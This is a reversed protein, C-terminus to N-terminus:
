LALPYIAFCNNTIRSHGQVVDGHTLRHATIETSLLDGTNVPWYEITQCCVGQVIIWKVIVPEGRARIGENSWKRRAERSHSIRSM